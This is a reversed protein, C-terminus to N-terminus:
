ASGVPTPMPPPDPQSMSVATAQIFGRGYGSYDDITMVQFNSGHWLIEDGGGIDSPGQLVARDSYQDSPACITIAKNMFEIDPLRNLEDPGSATVVAQLSFAIESDVRRGKDNITTLKRIVTVSDMFSPDFAENVDLTPM